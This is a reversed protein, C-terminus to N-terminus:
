GGESGQVNEVQETSEIEVHQNNMYDLSIANKEKMLLLLSLGMKGQAELGLLRHAKNTQEAIAENFQKAFKGYTQLVNAKQHVETYLFHYLDVIKEKYQESLDVTQFPIGLKEAVLLADNSDELWPCENSITVSDDHWNKMFQGIVEYGQEKLLYAAVSSDVGGSLGVVVRKM